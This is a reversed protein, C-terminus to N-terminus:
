KFKALEKEVLEKLFKERKLMKEHLQKQQEHATISENISQVEEEVEEKSLDM